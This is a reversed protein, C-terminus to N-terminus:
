HFLLLAASKKFPPGDVTLQHLGVTKSMVHLYEILINNEM